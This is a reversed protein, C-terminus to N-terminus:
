NVLRSPGAKVNPATSALGRQWQFVSLKDVDSGSIMVFQSEDHSAMNSKVDCWYFMDVYTCQSKSGRASQCGLSSTVVWRQERRAKIILITIDVLSAMTDFIIGIPPTTSEKLRIRQRHSMYRLAFMTLNYNNVTPEKRTPTKNFSALISTSFRSCYVSM